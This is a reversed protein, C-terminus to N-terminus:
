VNKRVSASTALYLVGNWKWEVWASPSVCHLQQSKTISQYRYWCCATQCLSLMECTGDLVVWVCIKKRLMIMADRYMELTINSSLEIPLICIWWKSITRSPLLRKNSWYLLSPHEPNVLFNITVVLQNTQFISIDNIDLYKKAYSNKM